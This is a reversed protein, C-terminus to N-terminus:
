KTIELEVKFFKAAYDANILVDDRLVVTTWTNPILLNNGNEWEMAGVVNFKHIVEGISLNYTSPQYWGYYGTLGDDQLVLCRKGNYPNM